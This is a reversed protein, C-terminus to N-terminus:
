EYEEALISYIVNDVDEAFLCFLLRIIFHAAAHPEHGDRRLHDALQAFKEAARRTVQDTTQESKFAEPRTFIARLLNLKSPDLLDDLQITEVRKVTNTFNTHIQIQELDCVILLPPNQLADKYQLLQQYAKTLDGHKGKYELAFFGQYWVDAFGAQGTEKNAFAEFTFFRGSPDMEVPTQHGALRCLDIFHSQYASKEKLTATRWRQVFELPTLSSAV